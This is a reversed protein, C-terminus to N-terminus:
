MVILFIEGVELKYSFIGMLEEFVNRLIYTNINLVKLCKPFFSSFLPFFSFWNHNSPCHFVTFSKFLRSINELESVCGWQM